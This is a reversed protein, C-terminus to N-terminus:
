RKVVPILSSPLPFLSSFVFRCMQASPWKGPLHSRTQSTPLPWYLQEYGDGAALKRALDPHQIPTQCSRSERMAREERKGLGEERM